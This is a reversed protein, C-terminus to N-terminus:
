IHILSLDYSLRIGHLQLTKGPVRKANSKLVNWAAWGEPLEAILVPEGDPGLKINGDDDGVVGAFGKQQAVPRFTFEATTLGPIAVLNGDDDTAQVALEGHVVSDGVVISGSASYFMSPKDGAALRERWRSSPVLELYLDSMIATNVASQPLTNIDM